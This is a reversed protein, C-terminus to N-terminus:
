PQLEGCHTAGLKSLYQALLLRHCFAGPACFCVLVVRPRSLLEQWIDNHQHYSNLMMQHYDAIYVDDRAHGYNHKKHDMVMQWTPAFYKGIPDQGKVTIDLRDPDSIRYQATFLEM